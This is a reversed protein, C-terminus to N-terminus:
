GHRTASPDSSHMKMMMPMTLVAVIAISAPPLENRASVSEVASLKSATVTAVRSTM